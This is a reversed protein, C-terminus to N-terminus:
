AAKLQGTHQQADGKTIEIRRPKMAEPIERALEISLVGDAYDASRVVVYDALEFRREFSRGAIGRHLYSRNDGNGSKQGSIILLNPQAVLNLEDPRFGAVAVTIRYADDGIKEVDYPPYSSGAESQLAAEIMGALRDAGIMSRYLPSLDFATRM